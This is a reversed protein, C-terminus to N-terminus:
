VRWSALARLTSLPLTVQSREKVHLHLPSVGKAALYNQDFLVRRITPSLYESETVVTKRIALYGNPATMLLVPPEGFKFWLDQVNANIYGGDVAWSNEAIRFKVIQQGTPKPLLQSWIVFEIGVGAKLEILNLEDRWIPAIQSHLWELPNVKILENEEGWKCCSYLRRFTELFTRASYKDLLGDITAQPTSNDDLRKLRFEIAKYSSGNGKGNWLKYASYRQWLDVLPSNSQQCLIM